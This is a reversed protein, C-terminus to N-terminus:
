LPRRGGSGTAQIWAQTSYNGEQGREKNGLIPERGKPVTEM